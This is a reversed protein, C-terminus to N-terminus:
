LLYIKLHNTFGWKRKPSINNDDPQLHSHQIEYFRLTATPPM